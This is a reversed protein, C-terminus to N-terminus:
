SRGSVDSDVVGQESLIASHTSFAVYECGNLGTMLSGRVPLDIGPESKSPNTPILFTSLKGVIEGSEEATIIRCM